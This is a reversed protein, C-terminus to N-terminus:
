SPVVKRLLASYGVSVDDSRRLAIAWSSVTRLLDVSEGQLAELALGHRWARARLDDPAVFLTADHTGLPVLGVGEAVDIALLKARRTRNITNVYLAGGPRLVRAIEALTTDVDPVHELVDAALAIDISADAVPLRQVDARAFHAGLKSAATKLSAHSLDFGVLQAGRKVVHASLLGGGCGLDVARRGTLELGLWDDLLATRFENVRHLSRFTRSRPNWWEDAHREYISLDNARTAM